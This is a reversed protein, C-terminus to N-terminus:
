MKEKIVRVLEVADDLTGLQDAMGISVSKEGMFDQGQMYEDAVGGRGINVAGKFMAHIEDVEAQILARQEESLSTGQIGVGKYKGAKIVDMKVGQMEFARSTDLMAMYVGVSGVVSSPTTVIAHSQSALWYGASAAMGDVYAVIPKSEGVERMLMALEPVGSVTGGPTDFRMVIGDTDDEEAASLADAIDNVDTVGSSKELMSVKRGIVGAVDIVAVNEHYHLIDFDMAEFMEAIGNEAHATGDVHAQVIECIQKHM